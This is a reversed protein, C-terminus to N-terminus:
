KVRSDQEGERVEYVAAALLYTHLEQLSGDSTDSCCSLEWGQSGIFISAEQWVADEGECKM